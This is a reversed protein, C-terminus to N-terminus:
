EYTEVFWRAIDKVNNQGCKFILVMKDKFLVLGYDQGIKATFSDYGFNIGDNEINRIGGSSNLVPILAYRPMNRPFELQYLLCIDGKYSINLSRANVPENSEYYPVYAHTEFSNDYIVNPTVYWWCLSIVVIIFIILVLLKVWQKKM